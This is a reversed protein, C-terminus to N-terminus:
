RRKGSRLITKAERLTSAQNRTLARFIRYLPFLPRAARHRYFFPYNQKLFDEGTGFMRRWLYRAKASAVSGTEEGEAEVKKAANKMRQSATGYTGSGAMYWLLEQQSPTLEGGNLGELALNRVQDEFEVLGLTELEQRIYDKDLLPGKAQDFVWIDALIRVGCGSLDFHKFAHVIMYLYEDEHSFRFLHPNRADQIARKWPNEYYAGFASDLSALRRHLEFNFFPQKLFVEHNGKYAIETRYGRAEMLDVMVGIARQTSADQQDETEGRVKFGGEPAPEVYGYLIDNDCMARMEPRPYYNALHIGKLPLYSLGQQDMSALIQTREMDFRARRFFVVNAAREWRIRLDDPLDPQGKAGFWALGQVSNRSALRFVNEWTISEPKPNAPASRLACGMLHFLYTATDQLIKNENM